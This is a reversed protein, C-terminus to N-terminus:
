LYLVGFGSKKIGANDGGFAHPPCRQNLPECTRNVTSQITPSDRCLVIHPHGSIVKAVSMSM